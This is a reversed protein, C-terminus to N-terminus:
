VIPVTQRDAFIIEITQHQTLRAAAHTHLPQLKKQKQKKPTSMTGKIIKIPIHEYLNSHNSTNHLPM